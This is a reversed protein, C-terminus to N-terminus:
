RTTAISRPLNMEQLSSINVVLDISQDPLLEVQHPLLFAFDAAELEEAVEDYREFPRYHFTRADPFLTSLYWQAVGLAPPIDAMMLRPATGRSAVRLMYLLRGYGGGLELVSRLPREGLTEELYLLELFSNCLDQSTRQGRVELAIPNGLTPEALNAFRGSRDASLTYDQLCVAYIAYLKKEWWRLQSRDYVFTRHFGDQARPACCAGGVRRARGM